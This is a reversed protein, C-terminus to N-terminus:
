NSSILLFIHILKNSVIYYNRQQSVNDEILDNMQIQIIFINYVKTISLIFKLIFIGSNNKTRNQKFNSYICMYAFGINNDHIIM